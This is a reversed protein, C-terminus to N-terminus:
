IKYYTTHFTEFKPDYMTILLMRITMTTMSLSKTRFIRRGFYFLETCAWVHTM